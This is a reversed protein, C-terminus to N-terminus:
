VEELGVEGGNIPGDRGPNDDGAVPWPVGRASPVVALRALLRELRQEVLVAHVQAHKSVHVVALPESGDHVPSCVRRAHLVGLRGHIDNRSARPIDFPQALNALVHRGIPERIILRKAIRRDVKQALRPHLHIEDIALRALNQIPAHQILLM